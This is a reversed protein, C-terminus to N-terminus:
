IVALIVSVLHKLLGQVAYCTVESGLSKFLLLFEHDGMIETTLIWSQSLQTTRAWPREQPQLWATLQPQLSRRPAQSPQLTPTSMTPESVRCENGGWTAPTGEHGPPQSKGLPAVGFLVFPFDCHRQHGLRLLWAGDNKWYCKRYVFWSQWHPLPSCLPPFGPLHSDSPDAQSSEQAVM